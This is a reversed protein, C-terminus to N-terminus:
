AAPKKPNALNVIRSTWKGVVSEVRGAMLRQYIKTWMTYTFAGILGFSISVVIMGLAFRTENTPQFFFLTQALIVTLIVAVCGFILFANEVCLVINESFLKWGIRWGEWARKQQLVVAALAFVSVFSVVPGFVFIYVGSLIETAYKAAASHNLFYVSAPLISLLLWGGFLLLALIVIVLFLHRFQRIAAAIAGLLTPPQKEDVRGVVHIMTAESIIFIWFFAAITVLILGLTILTPGTHDVFLRGTNELITSIRGSTVDAQFNELNKQYTTIQNGGTFVNNFQGTFSLAFVGPLVISFFGLFWLYKRKWIIKFTQAISAWQTAALYVFVGILLYTLITSIVNM